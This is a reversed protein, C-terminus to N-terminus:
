QLLVSCCVAVCQLVSGFLAVCFLSYYAAVIPLHVDIHNYMCVYTRTIVCAYVRVRTQTHARMHTHISFDFV